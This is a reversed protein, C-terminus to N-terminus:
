SLGSAVNKRRLTATSFAATLIKFRQKVKRTCAERAAKAAFFTIFNDLRIGINIASAGGM